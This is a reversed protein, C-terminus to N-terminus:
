FLQMDPGEVKMYNSKSGLVISHASVDVRILGLTGTTCDLGAFESNAVETGSNEGEKM